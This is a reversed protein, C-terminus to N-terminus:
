PISPSGRGFLGVSIVGFGPAGVSFILLGRSSLDLLDLSSFGCGPMGFMGPKLIGPIGPNGPKLIGPMGLSFPRGLMGPMGLRGLSGPM